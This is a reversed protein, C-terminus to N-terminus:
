AWSRPRSVCPPVPCAPAPPAATPHPLPPCRHSPFALTHTTTTTTPPHTPPPPPPALRTCQAFLCVTLRCRSATPTAPGLSSVTTSTATGDAAGVQELAHKRVFNMELPEDQEAALKIARDLLNMQVVGCFM